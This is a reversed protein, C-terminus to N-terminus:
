RGLGSTESSQVKQLIMNYGISISLFMLAKRITTSNAPLMENVAFGLVSHELTSLTRDDTDQTLKRLGDGFMGKKSAILM